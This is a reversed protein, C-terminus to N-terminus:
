IRIIEFFYIKRSIYFYLIFRVKIKTITYISVDLMRLDSIM